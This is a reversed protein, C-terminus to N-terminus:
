CKLNRVDKRVVCLYYFIFTVSKQLDINSIRGAEQKMAEMKHYAKNLYSQLLTPMLSMRLLIVGILLYLRLTEFQENTM